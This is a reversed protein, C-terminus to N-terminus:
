GLIRLIAPWDRPKWVFVEQNCERLEALIARQDPTLKGRDSKLEAWIIRPRRILILDPWGAENRPLRRLSGCDVCRRPANTAVDHRHHWRKLTAYEIVAQQFSAETQHFPLDGAALFPM